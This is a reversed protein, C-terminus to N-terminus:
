RPVAPKLQRDLVTATWEEFLQKLNEDERFSPPPAGNAACFRVLFQRWYPAVPPFEPSLNKAQKFIGVNDVMDTAAILKESTMDQILTSTQEPTLKAVNAFRVDRSYFDVLKDGFTREDQILAYFGAYALREKTPMRLVPGARSAEWVASFINPHPVTSFAPRPGGQAWLINRDAAVLLCRDVSAAILANVGDQGIEAKLAERTEAIEHETRSWEVAQELGLAILIGCIITGIEILFERWSHAAKPKHIDM